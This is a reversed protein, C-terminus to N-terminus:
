SSPFIYWPSFVISGRRLVIGDGMWCRLAVDDIVVMRVYSMVFLLLWEYKWKNLVFTDIAVFGCSLTSIKKLTFVNYPWRKQKWPVLEDYSRFLERMVLLHSQVGDGQEGDVYDHTFGHIYNACRESGFPAIHGKILEQVTIFGINSVYMMVM